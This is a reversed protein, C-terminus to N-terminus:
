SVSYRILGTTLPDSGLNAAYVRYTGTPLDYFYRTKNSISGNSYQHGYCTGTDLNYFGIEVDNGIPSWVCTEIKLTSFSGETIVYNASDLVVVYQYFGSFDFEVSAYPSVTTGSSDTSVTNTPPVANASSAIQDDSIKHIIMEDSITKSTDEPSIEVGSVFVIQDIPIEHIVMEETDQAIKDAESNSEAHALIAFSLILAIVLTVCLVKRM